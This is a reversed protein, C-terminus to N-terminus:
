RFQNESLDSKRFQTKAKGTEHLETMFKADIPGDDFGTPNAVVSPIYPRCPDDADSRAVLRVYQRELAEKQEKAARKNFKDALWMGASFSGVMLFIIFLVTVFTINYGM